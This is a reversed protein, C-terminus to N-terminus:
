HHEGHTNIIVGTTGQFRQFYTTMFQCHCQDDNNWILNTAQKASLLYRTNHSQSHKLTIMTLHSDYYHHYYQSVTANIKRSQCDWLFSLGSAKSNISGWPLTGKNLKAQTFKSNPLFKRRSFVTHGTLQKPHFGGGSIGLWLHCALM